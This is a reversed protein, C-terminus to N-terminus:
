ELVETVIAHLATKRKLEWSGGNDVEPFRDSIFKWLAYKTEPNSQRVSARIDAAWLEVLKPMDNASIEFVRVVKPEPKTKFFRAFFQKM